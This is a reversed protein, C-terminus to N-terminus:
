GARTWRPSSAPPSWQHFGLVDLRRSWSLGAVGARQWRLALGITWAYLTTLGDFARNFGRLLWGLIANMPRMVFWGAVCASCSAPFFTSPPSPGFLWSPM